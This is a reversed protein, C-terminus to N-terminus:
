MPPTGMRPAMPNKRTGGATKRSWSSSFSGGGSREGDALERWGSNQLLDEATRNDPGLIFVGSAGARAGDPIYTLFRRNKGGVTVHQELVGWELTAYPNGPDIKRSYHM